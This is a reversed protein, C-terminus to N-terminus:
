NASKLSETGERASAWSVVRNRGRNKAAYLAVRDARDILQKSTAADDPYLALGLSISMKMGVVEPISEAFDTDAVVRRLREATRVARARTISPLLIAFEEGGYRAAIDIQRINARIISALHALAKDGAQHGFTDNISKFHDLDAMLLAVSTSTRNAREIEREIQDDFYARNYLGTLKDVFILKELHEARVLLGATVQAALAYLDIEEDTFPGPTSRLVELVGAVRAGIALPLTVLAGNAREEGTGAAALNAVHLTHRATLVQSRLQSGLLLAPVHEEDRLAIPALTKGDEDLLHLRVSTAGTRQLIQRRIPDFCDALEDSAKRSAIVSFFSTLPEGSEDLFRRAVGPEPQVVSIPHLVRPTPRPGGSPAPAPPALPDAVIPAVGPEVPASLAAPSAHRGAAPRPPASVEPVAPAPFSPNPGTPALIAWRDNTRRDLYRRLEPPDHPEKALKTIEGHRAMSELVAALRAPVELADPDALLAAVERREEPTLHVRNSLRRLLERFTLREKRMAEAIEPHNPTRPLTFGDWAM